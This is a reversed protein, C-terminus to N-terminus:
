MIRSFPRAPNHRAKLEDLPLAANIGTQVADPVAFGFEQLWACKEHMESALEAIDVNCNFTGHNDRWSRAVSEEKNRVLVTIPRTLTEVLTCGVLTCSGCGLKQRLLSEVAMRTKEAEVDEYTIGTKTDSM